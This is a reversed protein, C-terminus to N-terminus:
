GNKEMGDVGCVLFGLSVQRCHSGSVIGLAPAPAAMQSERDSRFPDNRILLQMEGGPVAPGYHGQQWARRM